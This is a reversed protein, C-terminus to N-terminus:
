SQSYTNAFAAVRGPGTARDASDDQLDIGGALWGGDITFVSGTVFSASDSALFAVLEAVE